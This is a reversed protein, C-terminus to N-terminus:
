ELEVGLEYDQDAHTCDEKATAQKCGCEEVEMPNNAICM